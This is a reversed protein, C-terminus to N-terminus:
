SFFEFKFPKGGIGKSVIKISNKRPKIQVEHALKDGFLDILDPQSDSLVLDYHFKKDAGFFSALSFRRYLDLSHTKDGIKLQIKSHSSRQGFDLLKAEYSKLHGTYNKVTSKTSSSPLPRMFELKHGNRMPFFTWHPEWLNKQYYGCNGNADTGEVLLERMRNGEGIQRITINQTLRALKRLILPHEKWVPDIPLVRVGPDSGDEFSYKLWPNGGETDIDAERTIIKLTYEDTTWDREYGIAMITSASVSINNAVFSKTESEPLPVVIKACPPSWPDFIHIDQGNEDLAYLNTVGTGVKHQRLLQDEVYDNYRGRHSIAIARIRAPLKLRRHAFLNAVHNLVPLSFWKDVWNNEQSIDIAVYASREVLERAAALSPNKKFNLECHRYEDIVKKYHVQHHQDIVVLNAGDSDIFVPIERLFGDFFLPQWRMDGIRRVWLMGDELAFEHTHNFTRTCSKVVLREHASPMRKSQAMEFYKTELASPKRDTLKPILTLPKRGHSVRTLMKAVVDGREKSVNTPQTRRTKQGMPFDNIPLSLTISPTKGVNPTKAM